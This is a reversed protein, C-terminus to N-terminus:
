KQGLKALEKDLQKPLDAAVASLAANAKENMAKRMFPQAPIPRGSRDHTFGFEIWRWHTTNGGPLGDLGDGKRHRAGGLIGVRMMPGGMRRERRSGGGSVSINKFIQERTEPDDIARANIRAADRIVNAGKRLARRGANNGIRQPLERIKKILGDFDIENSIM